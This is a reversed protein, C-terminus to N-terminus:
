RDALQLTDMQSMVKDVPTTPRSHDPEIPQTEVVDQMSDKDNFAQIDAPRASPAGVYTRLGGGKQLTVKGDRGRSGIPGVDVSSDIVPDVQGPDKADKLTQVDVEASWIVNRELADHAQEAIEANRDPQGAPTKLDTPPICHTLSAVKIDVSHYGTEITGYVERDPVEESHHTAFYLRAEEPDVATFGPPQYEEPTDSTYYLKFTAYRRRPLDYLMAVRTTLNRLLTRLNTAVERSSRGAPAASVRKNQQSDMESELSMDGMRMSLDMTPVRGEQGPVEHYSFNFTYAEVINTPDNRDLYIALVFSSLYQKEIADCIGKEIYDYMRKADGTADKSLQKVVYAIDREGESRFRLHVDTLSKEPFLGRVYVIAGLSSRVSQKVLGVSDNFTLSEQMDRVLSSLSTSPLRAAASVQRQANRLAQQM